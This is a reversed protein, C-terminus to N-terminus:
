QKGFHFGTQPDKDSQIESEFNTMHKRIEDQYKDLITIINPFQM